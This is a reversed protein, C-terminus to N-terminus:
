EIKSIVIQELHQKKLERVSQNWTDIEKRKLLTSFTVIERRYLVYNEFSRYSISFQYNQNSFSYDKPLHSVEYGEPINLKVEAVLYHKFIRDVDHIRDLTDIIDISYNEPDAEIYYKDGLRQIGKKKQLVYTAEINPDQVGTGSFQVDSVKNESKSGSLYHHLTTERKDKNPISNIYYLLYQKLEGGHSRVCQGVIEEGAISYECYLSDYNQIAKAEPVQKIIVEEEENPNEIMAQKGEISHPIVGLAIYTNTPDLYLYDGDSYIACIMHDCVFLGPVSFDYSLENTGIWVYRADLGEAILLSRLLATMGKCDGYRKRLVESPADPQFASIGDIFAIYRINGQVWAYLAEIKERDTECSQVIERAKKRIIDDDNELGRTLDASWRYFDKLDEFYTIKQGNVVASKIHFLLHPYVHSFGPMRDEKKMTPQNVIRYIYIREGTIPDTGESRQIFDNFNKEVIDMDMWAPVRITIKRERTEYALDLLYIKSFFHLDTHTKDFSVQGVKAKRDFYLTTYCMKLDSYFIGEPTYQKYQLKSSPVGKVRFNNMVTHSDYSEGVWASGRMKLCEYTTISKEHIVPNGKDLVFSFIDERQSVVVDKKESQAFGTFSYFLLALCTLLKREVFLRM